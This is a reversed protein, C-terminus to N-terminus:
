RRARRTWCATHAIRKPTTNDSQFERLAVRSALVVADKPITSQADVGFRLIARYEAGGGTGVVTRVSGCDSTSPADSAIMCDMVPGLVSVTPDVTVPFSRQPSGLWAPDVSLRPHASM